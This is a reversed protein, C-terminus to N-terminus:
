DCKTVTDPLSAVINLYAATERKETKKLGTLGKPVSGTYIMKFAQMLEAKPVPVIRCQPQPSNCQYNDGGLRNMIAKIKALAKGGRTFFPGRYNGKAKWKGQKGLKISLNSLKIVLARPYNFVSDFSAPPLLECAPAGQDACMNLETPVQNQTGIFEWIGAFGTGTDFFRRPIMFGNGYLGPAFFEPPIAEGRPSLIRNLLNYQLPVSMTQDTVNEYPFYVQEESGVLVQCINALPRVLREAEIIVPSRASFNISLDVLPTFSIVPLGSSVSVYGSSPLRLTVEGTMDTL